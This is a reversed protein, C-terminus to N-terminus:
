QTRYRLITTLTREQAANAEHCHYFLCWGVSSQRYSLLIEFVTPRPMSLLSIEGLISTDSYLQRGRRMWCKVLVDILAGSICNQSNSKGEGTNQLFVLADYQALQEDTFWSQDETQDFTINYSPGQAKMVQIATPISDHRFDATASYILARAPTSSQQSAVSMAFLITTLGLSCSFPIYM